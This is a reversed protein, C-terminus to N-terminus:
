RLRTWATLAVAQLLSIVLLSIDTVDYLTTYFWIRRALLVFTAGVTVNAVFFLVTAGVTELVLGVAAGLGGLGRRRLVVVAVLSTFAAV